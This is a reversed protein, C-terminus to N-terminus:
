GMLVDSVMKEGEDKCGPQPNMAVRIHNIKKTPYPSPKHSSCVRRGLSTLYNFYLYVYMYICLNKTLPKHFGLVVCMQLTAPTHGIISSVLQWIVIESVYSLKEM